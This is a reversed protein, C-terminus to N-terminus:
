GEKKSIADKGRSSFLGTSYLLNTLFFLGASPFLSSSFLAPSPPFCRNGKGAPYFAPRNFGAPKNGGPPEPWKGIPGKLMRKIPVRRQM